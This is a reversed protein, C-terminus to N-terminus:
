LAGREDQRWAVLSGFEIPRSRDIHLDGMLVLNATARINFCEGLEGRNLIDWRLPGRKRLLRRYQGRVSDPVSRRGHRLLLRANRLAPGAEIQSQTCLRYQYGQNPLHKVLFETREQVEPRAADEDTKVEVLEQHDAYVILMDPFHIQEGRGPLQYRVVGPQLRYFEVDPDTETIRCFDAELPSETQHMLWSLYGPVKSTVKSNRRSVTKRAPENDPTPEFTVNM